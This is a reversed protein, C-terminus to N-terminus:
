STSRDMADLQQLRLGCRQRLWEFRPQVAADLAAALGASEGGQALTTAALPALWTPAGARRRRAQVMRRGQRLGQMWWYYVFGIDDM